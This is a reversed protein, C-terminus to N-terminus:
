HAPPNPEGYAHGPAPINERWPYIGGETAGKGLVFHKAQEFTEVFPLNPDYLEDADRPLWGAKSVQGMLPRGLVEELQWVFEVLAKIDVGTDIGMEELM